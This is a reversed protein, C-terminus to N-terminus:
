FATRFFLDASPDALRCTHDRGNRSVLRVREGDMYALIRWGEVKEEYVWGDRRVPECVLTLAM